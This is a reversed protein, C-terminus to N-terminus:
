MMMQKVSMLPIHIAQHDSSGVNGLPRCCVLSDPLDTIVPDLSSGMDHTPFDVHNTLGFVTLLEEFSRMVLNQNMDGVIILHKCSYEYLLSDLNHHIYEIPENGQWQPRYCTCFLISDHQNIWIKFFMIELNEPVNVELAQVPLSKRFCVAIGGKERGVRDKRYWNSYSNIRGYNSPVNDNFFTEVTAVIDPNHPTIFSYTLDGINTLLGRVNASIITLAKSKQQVHQTM